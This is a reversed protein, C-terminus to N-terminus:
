FLLIFYSTRRRKMTYDNYTGLHYMVMEKDVQNPDGPDMVWELQKDSKRWKRFIDRLHTDGFLTGRKKHTELVLHFGGFSAKIRRKYKTPNKRLLKNIGWVPNGDGLLYASTTEMIPPYAEEITSEGELCQDTLTEAYGLLVNLTSDTVLDSQLPVDITVNNAEYNTEFKERNFNRLEDATTDVIKKAGLVSPLKTAWIWENRGEKSSISDKAIDYSPLKEKAELDM